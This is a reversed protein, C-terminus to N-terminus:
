PYAAAGGPAYPTGAAAGAAANPAKPPPIPVSQAHPVGSAGGGSAGQGQLKAKSLVSVRGSHQNQRQASNVEFRSLCRTIIRRITDDSIDIQNQLEIRWGAIDFLM